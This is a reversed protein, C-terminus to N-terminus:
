MNLMSAVSKDVATGVVIRRPSVVPLAGVSFACPQDPTWGPLRSGMRQCHLRRSNGGEDALLSAALLIVHTLPGERRPLTRSSRVESDQQIRDASIPRRVALYAPGQLLRPTSSLAGVIKSPSRMGRSSRSLDVPVEGWDRDPIGVISAGM